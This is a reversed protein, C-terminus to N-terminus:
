DPGNYREPKTKNFYIQRGQADKFYQPIAKSIRSFKGDAYVGGGFPCDNHIGVTRIVLIDKKFELSFKCGKVATDINGTNMRFIAKSGNIVARGYLEGMNYSPAGRNLDLYFLITSDSEPYIRALGVQGNKVSSGYSYIGAYTTTKAQSFGSIISVLSLLLSLIPKMLILNCSEKRIGKM